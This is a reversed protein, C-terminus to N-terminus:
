LNLDKYWNQQKATRIRHCNACVIECKNIESIIKNRSMSMMNSINYQKDRQHDFELVIPNNEKCDTCGKNKVLDYVFQRNSISYEKSKNNDCNKCFNSNIKAKETLNYVNYCKYCLFCFSLELLFNRWEQNQKKILKINPIARIFVKQLGSKDKYELYKYPETETQCFAKILKDKTIRQNSPWKCNFKTELIVFAEKIQEKLEM